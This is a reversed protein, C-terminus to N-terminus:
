NHYISARCRDMWSRTVTRFLFRPLRSSSACTSSRSCNAHDPRANPSGVFRPFSLYAAVTLLLTLFWFSKKHAAKKFVPLTVLSGRSESKSHGSGFMLASPSHDIPNIVFPSIGSSGVVTKSVPLRTTAPHLARFVPSPDLAPAPTLTRRHTRVTAM